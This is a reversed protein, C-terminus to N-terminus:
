ENPYERAPLEIHFTTGKGIKSVVSITGSMDTIIKKVIALGLGMGSTKTSFNPDFAKNLIEETMGGGTDSFDLLILGNSERARVLIVGWGETAQLSNRILNVLARRFEEDDAYIPPLNDPMDILFRIRVRDADYLAMASEVIQKLSVFGYKRRPMEGFRSFETAIRTLVEIQESLTRIVRRFVSGFNTDNEDYAHSVHQISLKMPTLPNKIEHAVQRAMEKWAGERESQAVNERTRELERTMRNFAQALEGVEDKRKIHVITELKGQTVEETAGILQQLPAAVRVSIWSGILLLLIGLAAFAGYMIEITNSIDSEIAGKGKYSLVGITGTTGAYSIHKYGIEVDRDDQSTKETEYSREGILFISAIRSPIQSPLWGGDFLEPRNTYILVGRENFLSIDRNMLRSLEDIVKPMSNGFISDRVNPLSSVKQAIVDADNQLQVEANRSEREVLLTQTINTVIVLPVLAITLVILFIRDRFKLVGKSGESFLTRLALAFFIVFLGIFLSVADLSLALDLLSLFTPTLITASLIVNETSSGTALISFLHLAAKGRINTETAVINNKSHRLVTDIRSSIHSPIEISHLEPSVLIDNKYRTYYVQDDGSGEAQSQRLPISASETRPLRRPIADVWTSLCLVFKESILTDIGGVIKPIKLIILGVGISHSFSLSHSDVVNTVLFQQSDKNSIFQFLSDQIFKNSREDAISKGQKFRSVLQAHTDYIEVNINANRLTRANELWIDFALKKTSSLNQLEAGLTSDSQISLFVQDIVSSNNLLASEATQKLNEKVIEIKDRHEQAAILPSLIFGAGCLLFLLGLGSRPIRYFISEAKSAASLLAIDRRFILIVAFELCITILLWYSERYQSSLSPSLFLVIPLSFIIFVIYHGVYSRKPSLESVTFRITMRLLWFIAFLSVFFYSLGVLLFSAEMMVFAGDRFGPRNTIYHFTSNQVISKVAISFMVNILPLTCIIAGISCVKLVWSSTSIPNGDERRDINPIVWGVQKPIFSMWILAFFTAVYLLSVFLQLPNGFFGLVGPLSFDQSERFAIPVLENLAGTLLLTLRGVFLFGFILLLHQFKERRTTADSCKHALHWCLLWVFFFVFLVFALNRILVVAQELRTPEITTSDGVNLYGALTTSDTPDLFLIATSRSNLDPSKKGNLVVNIVHGSRAFIDDFVTSHSSESNGLPSRKDVLTKVSVYGLLAGEKSIIKRIAIIWTKIQEHELFIAKPHKELFQSYQFTSDFSPTAVKSSAWALLRGSPDYYGVGNGLLTSRFPLRESISEIGRRLLSDKRQLREFLSFRSSSNELIALLSSDTSISDRVATTAQSINTLRQQSTKSIYRDTLEIESNRSNTSIIVLAFTGLVVVGCAIMLLLRVRIPTASYFETISASLRVFAKSFLAGIRIKAILAKSSKTM